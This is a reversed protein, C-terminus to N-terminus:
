NSSFSRALNDQSVKGQQSDDYPVYGTSYIEERTVCDTAEEIWRVLM